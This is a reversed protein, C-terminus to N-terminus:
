IGEPKIAEGVVGCFPPEPMSYGGVILSTMSLDLRYTKSGMGPNWKLMRTRSAPSMSSAVPVSLYPALMM